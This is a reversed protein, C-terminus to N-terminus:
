SLQVKKAVVPYVNKEMGKSRKPVMWRFSSFTSSNVKQGSEKKQFKQFLGSIETIMKSIQTILLAHLPKEFSEKKSTSSKNVSPL